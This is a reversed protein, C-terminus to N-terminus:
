DKRTLEAFRFCDTTHDNVMGSAQMFAYCITPGVFRFGAQKLAKSMAKSADTEAPLQSMSTFANVRPQGGVLSWLYADLSGHEEITALAAQANAVTAAVKARNRIIGEDQLARAQDHDTWAALRELDFGDFVRRYGERRHLVTRWSLGAQAGELTLLEFLPRDGHLPAGWEQDHYALMLDDDQGTWACRILDPM